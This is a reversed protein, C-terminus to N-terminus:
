IKEAPLTTTPLPLASSASTPSVSTPPQFIYVETKASYFVIKSGGAQNKIVLSTEDKSIIEGRVMGSGNMMRGGGQRQGGNGMQGRNQGSYQGNGSSPSVQDTNNARFNERTSTTSTAGRMMFNGLEGIMIRTANVTGDSNTTGLIAVTKGVILDALTAKTGANFLRDTSSVSNGRPFGAKNLDDGQNNTNKQGCGSIFVIGCISLSVVAMKKFDFM